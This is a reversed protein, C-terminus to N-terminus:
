NSSGEGSAESRREDGPVRRPPRRRVRGREEEGPVDLRLRHRQVPHRDARRGLPTAHPSPPPRNAQRRAPPMPGASAVPYVPRTRGLSMRPDDHGVCGGGAVLVVPPDNQGGGGEAVLDALEAVLDTLKSLQSPDVQSPSVPADKFYVMLDIASKDADWKAKARMFEEETGSEARGTATGFRYWMIGIFIDYDPPIQRNIVDQPDVGFGPYAHTEWRILDLRISLSRSWSQNLESIVEELRAREESVDSPSALFVSLIQEQRPM